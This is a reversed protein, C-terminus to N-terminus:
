HSHGIFIAILIGAIITLFKVINFKHGKDGEYLIVTGIHFFIGVVLAMIIHYYQEVDHIITGGFYSIVSGLPAALSFLFLYFYSKYKSYGAGIFLSMLVIAIPIKHIVIGLLLMSEVEDHQHFHGSFPMGEFFAHVSIGILLGLPNFKHHKHNEEHHHNHDDHLNVHQHGHDIGGSFYEIIIQIFFGLLVYYGLEHSDNSGFIEPIIQTFALALLFAGSFYLLMNVLRDNMKLFFIVSSSLMVSLFLVLIAIIDM